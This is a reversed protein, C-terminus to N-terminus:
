GVLPCTDLGKLFLELEQATYQRYKLFYQLSDLIDIYQFLEGHGICRVQGSRARRTFSLMADTLFIENISRCLELFRTKSVNDAFKPFENYNLKCSFPKARQWWFGMYAAYKYRTTKEVKHYRAIRDLDSITNVVVDDILLENAPHAITSVLYGCIKKSYFDSAQKKLSNAFEPIVKKYRASLDTYDAYVGRM